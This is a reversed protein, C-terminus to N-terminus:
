FKRQVIFFLSITTVLALLPFVHAVQQILFDGVLAESKIPQM